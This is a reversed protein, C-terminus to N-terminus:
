TQTFDNEVVDFRVPLNWQLFGLWLVPKAITCLCRTIEQMSQTSNDRLSNIIEKSPFIKSAMPGVNANRRMGKPRM